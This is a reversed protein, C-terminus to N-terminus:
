RTSFLASFLASFGSGEWVGPLIPCGVRFGPFGLGLFVSVAGDVDLTNDHRLHPFCKLRFIRILLFPSWGGSSTARSTPTDLYM